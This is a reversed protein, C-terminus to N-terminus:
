NLEQCRGCIGFMMHEDEPLCNTCAAKYAIKHLMIKMEKHSVHWLFQMYLHDEQHYVCSTRFM